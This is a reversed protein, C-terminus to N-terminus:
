FLTTQSALRDPEVPRVGILRQMERVSAPAHGQFLNSFYGYVAPVRAALAALAMAWVSLERDRNIRVSSFDTFKGGTGLWRIYAFSTTPHIALDMIRERQPASGEVLVLAVGHRELLEVLRPGSWGRHRFEIAWRLGAPLRELYAALAEWGEPGFAPGSQVLLPGLRAGLLEARECFLRLASADPLGIEPTLAQPVKLAFSFDAPVKEAWSRVVHAQPIAHYTSDVEVTDFARSYLALFDPSRAGSPYFPGV